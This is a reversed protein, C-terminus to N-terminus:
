RARTSPSPASYPSAEFLSHRDLIRLERIKSGGRKKSASKRPRNAVGLRGVDRRADAADAGDGIMMLEDGRWPALREPDGIGAASALRQARSSYQPSHISLWARCANKSCRGSKRPKGSAGLTALALGSPLARTEAPSAMLFAPLARM